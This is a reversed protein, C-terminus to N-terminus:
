RWAALHRAVPSRRSARSAKLQGKAKAKDRTVSRYRQAPKRAIGAVPDGLVTEQTQPNLHDLPDTAVDSFVSFVQFGEGNPPDEVGDTGYV